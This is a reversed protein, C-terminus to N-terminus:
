ISNGTVPLPEDNVWVGQERKGDPAIITGPGNRKGNMYVGDYEMDKKGNEFWLLVGKGSAFGDKCDGTWTVSENPQPAPNWIKCPKNTAIIWDPPAQTDPQAQIDQAAAGFTVFLMAAGAILGIQKM